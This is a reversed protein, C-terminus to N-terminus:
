ALPTIEVVASKQPGVKLGYGALGIALVLLAIGIVLLWRSTSTLSKTREEESRHSIVFTKNKSGKAPKGILGGAQVEGLVYISIDPALMFEKRQYRENRGAM